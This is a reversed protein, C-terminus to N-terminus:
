AAISQGPHYPKPVRKEYDLGSKSEKEKLDHFMADLDFNFQAAYEKRYKRV